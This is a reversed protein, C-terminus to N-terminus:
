DSSYIFHFVLPHSCTNLHCTFLCKVFVNYLLNLSHSLYVLLSLACPASNLSCNPKNFLHISLPLYPSFHVLRSHEVVCAGIDSLPTCSNTSDLHTALPSSLPTSHPTSCFRSCPSCPMSFLCKDTTSLLVPLKFGLFNYQQSTNFPTISLPSVSSSSASLHTPYFFPYNLFFSHFVLLFQLPTFM